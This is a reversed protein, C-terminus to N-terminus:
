CCFTFVSQHQFLTATPTKTPGQRGARRFQLSTSTCVTICIPCFHHYNEQQINMGLERNALVGEVNYIEDPVGIQANIRKNVGSLKVWNLSSENTQNRALLGCSRVSTLASKSEHSQKLIHYDSLLRFGRKCCVFQVSSRNALQLESCM